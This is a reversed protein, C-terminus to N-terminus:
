FGGELFSYFVMRFVFFQPMSIRHWQIECYVLSLGEEPRKSGFFSKQRLLLVFLEEKLSKGLSFPMHFNKKQICKKAMCFKIDPLLFGGYGVQACYTPVHVYM